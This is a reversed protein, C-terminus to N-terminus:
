QAMTLGNSANPHGAFFRGERTYFAERSNAKRAIENKTKLVINTMFLMNLCLIVFFSFKILYQM